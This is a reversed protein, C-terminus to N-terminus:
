SVIFLRYSRSMGLSALFGLRHLLHLTHSDSLRGLLLRFVRSPSQLDFLDMELRPKWDDRFNGSPGEAILQSWEPLPALEAEEWAAEAEVQAAVRAARAKEQAAEAKVGAVEAEDELRAAEAEAGHYIALSKSVVSAMIKDLRVLFSQLMVKQLPRADKAKRQSNTLKKLAGPTPYLAATTHYRTNKFAVSAHIKQGPYIARSKARHVRRDM